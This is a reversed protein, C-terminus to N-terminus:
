GDERRLSDTNQLLARPLLRDPRVRLQQYLVQAPSIGIAPREKKACIVILVIDAAVGIRDLAPLIEDNEVTTPMVITSVMTPTSM